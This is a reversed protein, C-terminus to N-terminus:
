ANTYFRIEALYGPLAGSYIGQLIPINNTTNITWASPVGFNAVRVGDVYLADHLHTADMQLVAAHTRNPGGNPNGSAEYLGADGGNFGAGAEVEQGSQSGENNGWAMGWDTRGSGSLDWGIIASANYYGGGTTGNAIARFVAAVTWNSVTNASAGGFATGAPVLFGIGSPNNNGNATVSYNSEILGAHSGFIGPVIGAKSNGNLNAAVGSISDVWSSGNVYSDALWQNILGSEDLGAVKTTNGGLGAGTAAIHATGVALINLSVTQNTSNQPFTVTTSAVVSPNDSTLTVTYSGSATVSAPVTINVTANSGVDAGNNQSLIIAPYPATQAWINSVSTSSAAGTYFQFNAMKGSFCRNFVLNNGMMLTGSTGLQLPGKNVLINTATEVPAHTADGTYLSFVGNSISTDYVLTVFEWQAVPIEGNVLPSFNENFGTNGGSEGMEVQFQSVSQIQLGISSYAASASDVIGNTGVFFLRSANAINDATFNFWFSITCQPVSGLGLNPNNTVFALASAYFPAGPQGCQEGSFKAFDLGQGSATGSGAGGHLDVASTSGIPVNTAVTNLTITGAAGGSSSTTTGTDNFPFAFQLTQAGAIFVTSLLALLTVIVPPLHFRRFGARDFQNNNQNTM